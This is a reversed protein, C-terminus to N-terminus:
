RITPAREPMRSRGTRPRFPPRALSAEPLASRARRANGSPEPSAVQKVIQEALVSVKVNARQSARRLLDFADDATCRHQAMLVGKAQEIVPMTDLRARLRAFASEQLRQRETRGKEIEEMIAQARAM